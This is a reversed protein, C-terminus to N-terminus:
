QSVKSSWFTEEMTGEVSKYERALSQWAVENGLLMNKLKKLNKQKLWEGRIWELYYGKSYVFLEYDRGTEPLSFHLNYKDGPLSVEYQRDDSALNKLARDDAVGNKIIEDPVIEM